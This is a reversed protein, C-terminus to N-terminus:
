KAIRLRPGAAPLYTAEFWDKDSHTMRCLDDVSMDNETTHYRILNSINSTEERPLENPEAKRFGHKSLQIYLSKYKEPTIARVDKARYILAQMSSRWTLKLNAAKPLTLDRLDLTIDREPMLFESAFEDAEDEISKSVSRHMVMHGLEHALTWRTRDGPMRENLVVFPSLGTIWLSAGDVKPIHFRHYIVFIGASEVVKVLNRIPGAPLQWEARVLRAIEAPSGDVGVEFTPVHYESELPVGRLLRSLQMQIINVEAQIKKLDPNPITQRKRHFLFSAGLGYLRDTQRFFSVPVKLAKSFEVAASETIAIDGSEMRSVVSQDYGTARALDTQTM